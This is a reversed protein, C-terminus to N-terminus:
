FLLSMIVNVIGGLTGIAVAVFISILTENNSIKEEVKRREM